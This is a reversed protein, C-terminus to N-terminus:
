CSGLLRHESMCPRAIEPLEPIRNLAGNDERRTIHEIECVEPEGTRRRRGGVRRLGHVDACRYRDFGNFAFVDRPYNRLRRRELRRCTDEVDVGGRQLPFPLSIPQRSRTMIGPRRRSRNMTAAPRSTKVVTVALTHVNKAKVRKVPVTVSVTLCLSDTVATVDWSAPASSRSSSATSSM